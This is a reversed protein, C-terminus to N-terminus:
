QPWTFFRLNNIEGPVVRLGRRGPQILRGQWLAGMGGEERGVPMWWLAGDQPRCPILGLHALIGSLPVPLAALFGDRDLYAGRLMPAPDIGHAAKVIDACFLGCDWEGFQFLRKHCGALYDAVRQKQGATMGAGM